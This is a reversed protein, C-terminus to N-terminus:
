NKLHAPNVKIYISLEFNDNAKAGKRGPKHKQYEVKAIICKLIRNKEEASLSGYHEFMGAQIPGRRCSDLNKLEQEETEMAQYLIKKREALAEKRRLFEEKTYVGSEVLEYTTQLQKECKNLESRLQEVVQKKLQLANEQLNEPETQLAAGCFLKELASTIKKEVILLPASVTACNKSPCYLIDYTTHKNAGLRRMVAGCNKCFVIGSLPNKLSLDKKTRSATNAARIRQAEDFIEQSIIAPHLGKALICNQNKVRKRRVGGNERFKKETRYAWRIKGTYVPNKLIDNITARSWRGGKRPKMQLEDLKEAIRTMGLGETYLAYILRVTKAESENPVLTFGKGGVIKVKDYGYPPTSVVAKGEKASAIRGRQIRRNIAKYERRSMFLGFEFYEEDFEDNPDYTKLPTIIKTGSAKFAQAVIGQDITDGRALREIEMVFVGSWVGQEVEALLKQVQPRAAITEGSVVERYIRAITVNMKQALETLIKEHRALTETEGRNEAEIDARSKRLYMCYRTRM